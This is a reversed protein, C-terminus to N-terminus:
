PLPVSGVFQYEKGLPGAVRVASMRAIAVSEIKVGQGNVGDMWVWDKYAKLIKNANITSKTPTQGRVRPADGTKVVTAHLKLAWSDTLMLGADTFAKKLSLSFAMLSDSPLPPAYLITAKAPDLVGEANPMVELGKLTVRLDKGEGKGGSESMGVGAKKLMANLDLSKLLKVAAQEKEPTTLSMVGLTLHLTGLPQIWAEPIAHPNESTRITTLQRKFVELSEYLEPISKPTLLPIMLFHTLRAPLM